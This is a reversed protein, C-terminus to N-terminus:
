RNSKKYMIILIIGITSFIITIVVVGINKIEYKNVSVNSYFNILNNNKIKENESTIRSSNMSFLEKTNYIVYSQSIPEYATIYTNDFNIAQSNNNGTNNTNNQSDKNQEKIGENVIDEDVKTIENQGNNVSLDIDFNNLIVENNNNNVINEDYEENNEKKIEDEIPFNELKKILKNAEEYDSNNIEYILNKLSFNDKVYEILDQKESINNNYVEEGTIYNFGRINGDSYGVLVINTDQNLNNTMQVIDKNKFNDPYNIKSLLDYIVGDTGLTAEYQNDNYSNIIVSNGKNKLKGDILYLKNDKVFLQNDKFTYEGDDQVIKTCHYFTLINNNEFESNSIPIIDDLLQIEINGNELLDMTSLEFMNGEMDLAKNNFINVYEGDFTRKNSYLNNDLLYFYENNNIALTNQIEDAEFELEEIYNVNSTIIHLPTKFDYKMTYVRSDIKHKEVIAENNAVVSFTTNEGLKSFEINIKDIDVPYLYTEPLTELVIAKTNRLGLTNLSSMTLARTQVTRNPIPIKEQIINLYNSAWYTTANSYTTTLIPFYGSNYIFRSTGFNLGEYGLTEGEEDKIATNKTYTSNKNLDESTILKYSDAEKQILGAQVGNIYSCNYVYINNMYQSQSLASATNNISGVGFSNYNGFSNLDTVVLNCEINNYKEVDEDYNLNTAIIGVVGGVSDNASVMKEENVNAIYNYKITGKYQLNNLKSNDFYGVIGGAGINEAKINTNTAYTYQINGFIFKGVIGGANNKAKVESNICYSHWLYYSSSSLQSGSTGEYGTYYGAIGGANEGNNSNIICDEVATAYITGFSNGVIGGVNNKGCIIRLNKAYAGVITYNTMNNAPISTNTYESKGVIGGVNNGIGTISGDTVKVYRLRATLFGFSGGVNDKGSISTRSGQVIFNSYTSNFYGTMGVNGGINTTGSVINDTSTIKSVDGSIGGLNGGVSTVGEITNYTSIYQKNTYWGVYGSNGGAYTGSSQIKNNESTLTTSNGYTYGMNGGVYSRGKIISNANKVNEIGSYGGEWRGICGGVQDRGEVLFETKKDSAKKGTEEYQYATINSIKGQARGILGGVYDGAGDISIYTGHIESSSGLSTTQGCLGGVYSSGYCYVNNISINNFSGAMCRSFIGVYSYRASNVTKINIKDFSCNKVEGRDICIIGVYDGKNKMSTKIENIFGQNKGLTLNVNSIQMRDESNNKEEAEIRGVVVNYAIHDVETFDINGVIKVNQGPYTKGEGEFFENWERANSISNFLEVKIKTQIDKPMNQGNRFYYVREIKYSDYARNPTATFTVTTYGQEDTTTQWSDEIVNMDDNEIKVGTLEFNKKNEFKMTINVRTKDESPISQISELKLDTDLVVLDQYPQVNGETDNLQLLCENELLDMDNQQSDKIVYEFNNDWGLKNLYTDKSFLENYTLLKTAGLSQTSPSGNLLQDKYAYNNYNSTGADNGLIRNVNAVNNGSVYINGLYLSGQIANTGTDCNGAIGGIYASGSLTTSNFNISSYCNNIYVKEGNGYGLIGGARTRTNIKGSTYCNKIYVYPIGPKVMQDAGHSKVGVIGGIGTTSYINADFNLNQVFNNQINAVVGGYIYFYGAIGGIIVDTVSQNEFEVTFNKIGCNQIAVRDALSSSGCNFYAVIGGIYPSGGSYKSYVEMDKIHINEIFLNDSPQCKAILGVYQSNTNITFGDININKLTGNLEEVLPRDGEINKLTHIVGDSKGDLYGEFIGEIYPSVESNAFDLDAVLRYNQILGSVGNTDENNINNWENRDSIDKIFTADFSRTGLESNESYNAIIERGNAKRAKIQAVNYTNLYSTPNDLLVYMTTVKQKYGQGMINADLYNVDISSITTGSPNYVRVEAIKTNKENLNVNNNSIYSNIDNLVKESLDLTSVDNNEIVEASLIDIIDTGTIDIVINEQKPMNYNLKLQPYYGNKVLNDIIFSNYGGTNLMNDQIAPEYLSTVPYKINNPSENFFLDAFYRSGTSKSKSYSNLINPGDNVENGENDMLNYYDFGDFTTVIPNVSYVNKVNAKSEINNILAGTQENIEPPVGLNYVIYAGYSFSSDYHNIRINSINYVNQLLANQEMQFIVGAINRSEYIPMKGIGEIGEGYLYGNQVVGDSYLCVGALNKSGKLAVEFKVIFNEITGSNKYGMLAVNLKEKETCQKLNIIINDINGSNYLFLSYLGDEEAIFEDLGNVKTTFRNYNTNIYYNMVINKITATSELKYFLYPICDRKKNSDFTAKEITKGNFDISGYFHINPSGFTYEAIDSVNRFNLDSAIIYNGYPQIEKYEEVSTIEKIETCEEPIYNFEVLDLVYERGYQRIVLEIEFHIEENTEEILYEYLESIKEYSNYTYAFENLINNKKLRIFYKCQENFEDYTVHKEDIFDVNITAYLKHEFKNYETARNGLEVQLNKIQLYYDEVIVEGEELEKEAKELYFGLYGDDPVKLTKEYRNWNSTSLNSIEEM